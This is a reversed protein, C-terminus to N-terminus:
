VAEGGGRGEDPGAEELPTTEEVTVVDRTM